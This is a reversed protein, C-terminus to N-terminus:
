VRVKNLTIYNSRKQKAEFELIKKEPNGLEFNHNDYDIVGVDYLLFM